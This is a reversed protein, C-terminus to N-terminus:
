PMESMSLRTPYTDEFRFQYPRMFDVHGDAFLLNDISNGGHPFGIRCYNGASDPQSLDFEHAGDLGLFIFPSRPNKESLIVGKSPTNIMEACHPKDMWTTSYLYNTKIKFDNASLSGNRNTPCFWVKDDGVLANLQKRYGGESDPPLWGLGDKWGYIPFRDSNDHYYMLMAVGLQKLQSKCSVERAKERAKSLAPLLMAAIIAIIAIVVLLEILTFCLTRKM